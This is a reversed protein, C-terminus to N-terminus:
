VNIASAPAENIDEEIAMRALAEEDAQTPLGAQDTPPFQPLTQPRKDRSSGVSGVAAPSRFRKDQRPRHGEAEQAALRAKRLEWASQKKIENAYAKGNINIKERRGGM